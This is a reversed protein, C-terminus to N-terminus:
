VYRVLRALLHCTTGKPVFNASHTVSTTQALFSSLQVPLPSSVVPASLHAPTASVKTHSTAWLVSSASRNALVTWLLFALAM